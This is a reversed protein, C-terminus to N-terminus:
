SFQPTWVLYQYVGRNEVPTFGLRAYLRQAPNHPEVHLTIRRSQSQAVQILAGLMRGGHGHGRQGPLLAIDMLRYEGPTPYLYVRGVAVADREIVCLAAGPYHQRYHEGQLRSQDYLFARKAEDPWPVVALEDWRTSAYLEDIFPRDAAAEERLTWVDDASNLAATIAEIAACLDVAASM